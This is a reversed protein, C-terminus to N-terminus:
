VATKIFNLISDSVAAAYKRPPEIMGTGIWRFLLSCFGGASYVAFYETDPAAGRDSGEVDTESVARRGMRGQIVELASCNLHYYLVPDLGNEHMLLLVERYQYWFCFYEEAIQRVDYHTLVPYQERYVRCLKQLFVDLVDERSKYLRYFTRRAVDARRTLESITIQAYNKEKMLAFLAEEIMQRSQEKQKEHGNMQM